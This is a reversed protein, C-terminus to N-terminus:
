LAVRPRQSSKPQRAAAAAGEEEPPHRTLEDLNPGIWGGGRWLAARRALMAAGDQQQVLCAGLLQQLLAPQQTRLKSLGFGGIVLATATPEAAVVRATGLSPIGLLAGEVGFVGGHDLTLLPLPGDVHGAELSVEVRVGRPPILFVERNSSGQCTLVEGGLLAQKAGYADLVEFAVLSTISGPAFPVSFGGSSSDVAYQRCRANPDRPRAGGGGCGGITVGGTGTGTAAAAAAATASSCAGGGVAAMPPAYAPAAGAAANPMRPQQFRPPEATPSNEMPTLRGSDTEPSDDDELSHILEEEAWTLAADLTEFVKAFRAM